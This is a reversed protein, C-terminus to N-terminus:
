YRFLRTYKVVFGRQQLSQLAVPETTRGETFVIFLDSGPRYEWRFRVNTTVANTSSNYQMLASVFTRPTLTYTARTTLLKTVFDGEPLAADTIAIRPELSLRPTVEIRGSYSVETRTGSYFAGRAVRLDGAFRRQTGLRYLADVDAFAYGRPALVVGSAITFPAVLVEYNRNYNVEVQDGNQLDTRFTWQGLRSQIRGDTNNVIYDLNAEYFLKRFIRQNKPRPSFRLQGYNRRFNQRRMFGIEPNFDEGVKLFEYSVGYRDPNYDFTGRYSEDDGRREDSWTKAWYGGMSLNDYFGFNADVGAVRNATDGALSPSRNTAILGINSRRLVDRRLRVVSFNAPTVNRADDKGTEINLLGLTYRGLRGSVRGGARIPTPRGNQLGIRRSFFLLPTENPASSGGGDGGGGGGGGRTRVSAFEFIGQGELFFERREPFFQSFRTLNVQTEDDEVQAFDTNYTFDAILSRTLGYKADFGFNGDNENRIAPTATNNTLNQGIVYPKLELNRSKSPVEIGVLTAAVNFRTSGPGGYSAPVESLFSTENKWRVVRRVNISWIQEGRERYRISKFPIVMEATWGGDFHASRTNWVTNWDFNNGSREDTVLAERIGGIANTQFYYGSRRDYFTDIAVSFSDNQGINRNDRRLENAVEREPHSDFMRGAFYINQDDYFVWLETKETAPQGPSPEQQIFDSVAPIQRYVEEDLRGDLTLPKDLRVARMTVRGQEDRAVMEPPVPPPPGQITTVARPTGAEQAGATSPGFLFSFLSLCVLILWVRVRVVLPM